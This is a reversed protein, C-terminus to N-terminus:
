VETTPVFGISYVPLLRDEPHHLVVYNGPKCETFYLFWGYPKYWLAKVQRATDNTLHGKYWILDKLRDKDIM